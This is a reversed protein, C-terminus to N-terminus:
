VIENIFVRRLRRIRRLKCLVEDRDATDSFQFCEEEKRYGFVWATLQGIDARCEYEPSADEERLAGKEEKDVSAEGPTMRCRWIGENERLLPDQVLLSWSIEESETRMLSLMSKVDAIRAMIAPERKGSDYIPYGKDGEPLVAELIEGKGDEETYFFYGEVSKDRGYRLWIGGDQVKLEREMGQYYLSDRRIFVDYNEGLFASACDSLAHFEEEALLRNALLSNALPRIALPRLEERLCYIKRDYIYTFQYPMYIRPDAPILFVFPLSKARAFSLAEKLLRDMYGRHRYRERTAVGVIYDAEQSVFREGTRLMVSYPSLYLMSAYEQGIKLAFAHNRVAKEEFYYDTFARSDEWFVEEWLQRLRLCEEGELEEMRLIEEM